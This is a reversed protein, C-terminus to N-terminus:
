DDRTSSRPDSAGKAQLERSAARKGDDSVDVQWARLLDGGGDGLGSSIRFSSADVHGPRTFDVCEDSTRNLSMASEIEHDIVGADAHHAIEEIRRSVMPAADEVYVKITDKVATAGGIQDHFGLTGAVNDVDGRGDTKHRRRRHRGVAGAFPCDDAKGGGQAGFSGTEADIHTDGTWAEDVGVNVFAYVVQPDVLCSKKGSERGLEHHAGLARRHPNQVSNPAVARYDDIGPVSSENPADVTIPGSQHVWEQAFDDTIEPTQLLFATVVFSCLNVVFRSSQLASVCPHPARHLLLLLLILLLLPYLPARKPKGDM